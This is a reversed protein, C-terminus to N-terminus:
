TSKVPSWKRLYVATSEERLPKYGDIEILEWKQGQCIIHERHLLNAVDFSNLKMWTRYYQGNRMIELRQLYFRRMLGKGKVPTDPIPGEIDEDCYSLIPDNEGGQKYNVAFMYPFNFQKQGDFMWGFDNVIGKYYASKPEFTNQAEDRSTNSINEPILCIMQPFDGAVIDNWQIADYHMVASFFRNEVTAKGAKFRDPLVYKAMGPTNVNRDKVIKYTGDNNDEKYKFLLEREYDAFLEMDSKKSLDQKWSWDKWNGNFYGGATQSMDDTESYPHMPEMYVIKSATDTGIALNFEDVVGKLFDLFKWKKFGLYNKFDITGGLPIRFYDLEFADVSLHLRAIGLGSDFTHAYIKASIVDGAAVPFTAFDDLIGEFERRGVTPADLLLLSTGNGNDDGHNM